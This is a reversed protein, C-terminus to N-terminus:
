EDVGGFIVFNRKRIREENFKGIVIRNNFCEECAPIIFICDGAMEKKCLGSLKLSLTEAKNKNIDGIFASKQVRFLGSNKCENSVRNRNNNETIDYIVWYVM